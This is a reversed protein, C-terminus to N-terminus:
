VWLLKYGTILIWNTALKGLIHVKGLVNLVDLLSPSWHIIRTTDLQIFSKHAESFIAGECGPIHAMVVFDSERLLQKMLVPQDLPHLISNIIYEADCLLDAM